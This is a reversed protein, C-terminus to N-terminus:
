ATLGVPNASLCLLFAISTGWALASYLCLRACTCAGGERGQMFAADSASIHLCESGCKPGWTEHRATSSPIIVLYVFVAAVAFGQRSDFYTNRFDCELAHITVVLFTAVWLVLAM